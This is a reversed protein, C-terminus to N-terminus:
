RPRNGPPMRGCRRHSRRLPFEVFIVYNLMVAAIGAIFGGKKGYVWGSYSIPIIAITASVGGFYEFLFIFSIMYLLVVTSITLTKLALTNEYFYTKIRKRRNLFDFNKPYLFPM